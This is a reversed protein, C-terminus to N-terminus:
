QRAAGAEVVGLATLEFRLRDRARALRSRVADPTAGTRNAIEDYSWSEGYKLLLTEADRAPLRALAFRILQRQEDALLWALPDPTGDRGETPLREAYRDRLRRQRGLRRRYLLSQRVAVRYLWPAAKAPDAPTVSSKVAAIAVNQLVEDVAQPEGTRALVVTRLWRGHRALVDPWDTAATGGPDTRGGSEPTM